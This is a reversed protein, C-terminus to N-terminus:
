EKGTWRSTGVIKDIKNEFEVLNSPYIRRPESGDLCGHYHNVTKDREAVKIRIVVSPQDTVLRECGNEKSPYSDSLAFFNVENIAEILKEIQEPTLKAKAVGQIKVHGKGLYQVSGDSRIDMWYSPCTGYCKTREFSILDFQTIKEAPQANCLSFM